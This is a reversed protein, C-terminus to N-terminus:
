IRRQGDWDATERLFFSILTNNHIYMLLLGKMIQQIEMQLTQVDRTLPTSDNMGGIQLDIPLFFIPNLFTIM